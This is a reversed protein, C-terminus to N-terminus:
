AEWSPRVNTRSLRKYKNSNSVDQWLASGQITGRELVFGDWNEKLDVSNSNKGQFEMTKKKNGAKLGKMLMRLENENMESVDEAELCLEECLSRYEAKLSFLREAQVKNLQKRLEDIQADREALKITLDANLKEDVMKEETTENNEYDYDEQYDMKKKKMDDDMMGDKLKDMISKVEDTIEVTRFSDQDFDNPDRQGELELPFAELIAQAFGANPDAPVAVLSLEVFDIGKAVRSNVAGNEDKMDDLADVTAGISVSTILGEKIMEQIDKNVIRGEFDIKKEISNFIINETTRGVISDIKNEHDKLIPKNKLTYASKELEEAMYTVGNKTTTSNIATGRILFENNKPNFASQLIPVSFNILKYSHDKKMKKEMDGCIRQASEKDHGQKVMHVVCTNFDKFPGIPM